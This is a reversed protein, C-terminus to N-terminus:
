KAVMPAVSCDGVPLSLATDPNKPASSAPKTAPRNTLPSFFAKEQIGFLMSPMLGTNRYGRNPVTNIPRNINSILGKTPYILKANDAPSFPRPSVERM